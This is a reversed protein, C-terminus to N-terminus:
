LDESEIAVDALSLDLFSIYPLPILFVPAPQGGGIRIGKDRMGNDLMGRGWMRQGRQVPSFVTERLPASGGLFREADRRSM